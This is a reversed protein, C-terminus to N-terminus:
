REGTPEVGKVDDVSWVKQKEKESNCVGVNLVDSM